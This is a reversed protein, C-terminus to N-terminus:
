AAFVSIMDIIVGTNLVQGFDRVVLDISKGITPTSHQLEVQPM